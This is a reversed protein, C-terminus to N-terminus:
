KIVRSIVIFHSYKFEGGTVVVPKFSMNKKHSCLARGRGRLHDMSMGGTCCTYHPYFTVDELGYLTV